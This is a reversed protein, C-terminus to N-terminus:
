CGSDNAACSEDRTAKFEDGDVWNPWSTSQGLMQGLISLLRLNSMVGSWDWNEDFEDKPGHYADAYYAASIAAGAESGGELLGEGDRLYFM